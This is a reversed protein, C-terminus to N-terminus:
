PLIAELATRLVRPLALSFVLSVQQLATVLREIQTIDTTHAVIFLRRVVHMHLVICM